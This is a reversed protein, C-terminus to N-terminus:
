EEDEVQEEDWDKGGQWTYLGQHIWTLIEAAVDVPRRRTDAEGDGGVRVVMVGYEMWNADDAIVFYSQDFGEEKALQAHNKVIGDLDHAIRETPVLRCTPPSYQKRTELGANLNALLHTRKATENLADDITYVAFRGAPYFSDHDPDGRHDNWDSNGIDVSPLADTEVGAKMRLADIYGDDNLTIALVGEHEWDERDVVVFLTKNSAGPNSRHHQVVSSVPQRVFSQDTAVWLSFKGEHNLVKVLQTMDVTVTNYAVFAGSPVGQNSM